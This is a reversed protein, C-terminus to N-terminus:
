AAMLVGQSQFRELRQSFRYLSQGHIFNSGTEIKRLEHLEGIGAMLRAELDHLRDLLATAQQGAVARDYTRQCHAEANQAQIEAERATQHAVTASTLLEQLGQIDLTLLHATPADSDLEQGTELRRAKIVDLAMQKEAIRSELGTLTASAANTIQTAKAAEQQAQALEYSAVEISNM